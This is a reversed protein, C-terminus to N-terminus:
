LMPTRSSEDTGNVVPWTGTKTIATSSALTM